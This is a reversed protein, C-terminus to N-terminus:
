QIRLNRQENSAKKKLLLKQWRVFCKDCKNKVKIDKEIEFIWNERQM